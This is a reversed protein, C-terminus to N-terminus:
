VNKTLNIIFFFLCFLINDNNCKVKFDYNSFDFHERVFYTRNYFIIYNCICFRKIFLNKKLKM